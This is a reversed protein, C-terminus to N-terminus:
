NPYDSQQVPPMEPYQKVASDTPQQVNQDGGVAPVRGMSRFDQELVPRRPAQAEPREEAQPQPHPHPHDEDHALAVGTVLVVMVLHIMPVIKM